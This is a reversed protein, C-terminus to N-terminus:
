KGSVDSVNVHSTAHAMGNYMVDRKRQGGGFGAFSARRKLLSKGDDM